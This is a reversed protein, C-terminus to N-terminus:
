PLYHERPLIRLQAPRQPLRGARTLSCNHFRKSLKYSFTDFTKLDIMDRDHSSIWLAWQM